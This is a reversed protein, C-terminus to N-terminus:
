CNQFFAALFDFLDNTDTVGDANFDATGAFFDRLLDFFDQSDVTGSANWDAACPTPPAPAAIVTLDNRRCGFQETRLDIAIQPFPHQPDIAVLGSAYTMPKDGDISLALTLEHVLAVEGGIRYTGNGEITRTARPASATWRVGTVSYEDFLPNSDTLTLRFAGTLTFEDERSPCDCPDLCFVEVFTSGSLLQYRVPAQALVGSATLAVVSAGIAARQM